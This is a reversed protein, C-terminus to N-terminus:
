EALGSIQRMTLGVDGPHAPRAVATEMRCLPRVVSRGNSVYYLHAHIIVQMVTRRSRALDM